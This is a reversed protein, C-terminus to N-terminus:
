VFVGTRPDEESSDYGSSNESLAPPRLKTHIRRISRSRGFYLGDSVKEYRRSYFSVKRDVKIPASGALLNPRTNREKENIMCLHSNKSANIKSKARKLKSRKRLSVSSHDASRLLQSRENRRKRPPKEPPNSLSIERDFIVQFDSQDLNIQPNPQPNRDAAAPKPMDSIIKIQRQQELYKAVYDETTLLRRSKQRMTKKTKALEGNGILARIKAALFKITKPM